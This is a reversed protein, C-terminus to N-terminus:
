CQKILGEYAVTNWMIFEYVNASNPAQCVKEKKHMQGLENRLPLFLKLDIMSWDSKDFKLPISFPYLVNNKKRNAISLM